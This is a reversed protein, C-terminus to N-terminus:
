PQYKEKVDFYQPYQHCSTLQNSIFNLYSTTHYPIIDSSSYSMSSCQVTIYASVKYSAALQVMGFFGVLIGTAIALEYPKAMGFNLIAVSHHSSNHM